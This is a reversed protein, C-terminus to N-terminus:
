LDPVNINFHSSLYQTKASTKLSSDILDSLIVCLCDQQLLNASNKVRNLHPCLPASVACCSPEPNSGVPQILAKKYQTKGRAQTPKRRHLKERDIEHTEVGGRGELSYDSTKLLSISSIKM